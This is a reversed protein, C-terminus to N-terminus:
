TSVAALEELVAPASAVDPLAEIDAAVARAGAGYSPDALLREVAAPLQEIAAPGGQLRIGAGAGAVREANVFQDFAFLPVVVQPIGAALATMTTGDTMAIGGGFGAPLGRPRQNRALLDVIASPTLDRYRDLAVDNGGGALDHPM